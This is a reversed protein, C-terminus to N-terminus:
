RVEALEMKVELKLTKDTLAFTTQGTEVDLIMRIEGKDSTATQKSGDANWLTVKVGTAKLKTWKANNNGYKKEESWTLMRLWRGEGEVSLQLKNDNVPTKALVLQMRGAVNDAPSGDWTCKLPLKDPKAATKGDICFLANVQTVNQLLAIAKETTGKLLNDEGHDLKFECLGEEYHYLEADFDRSKDTKQLFVHGTVNMINYNILFEIEETNVNFYGKVITSGDPKPLPDNYGEQYAVTEAQDDFFKIWGEGKYEDKEWSNLEMITANATMSIPFPMAGPKIKELYIEMKEEKELWTFRFKTPCGDPLRTKDVNSMKVRQGMVIDGSLLEIAKTLTPNTKEIEVHQPERECSLVAFALIAGM